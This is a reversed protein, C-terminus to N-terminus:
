IEASQASRTVCGELSNEKDVPLIGQTVDSRANKSHRPSAACIRSRKAPSISHAPSFFPIRDSAPKISPTPSRHLLPTPSHHRLQPYSQRWNRRRLLANAAFKRCCSPNALRRSRRAFEPCIKTPLFQWFSRVASTVSLREGHKRSFPRLGQIIRATSLSENTGVNSVRLGNSM